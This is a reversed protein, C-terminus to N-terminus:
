IRLERLESAVQSRQWVREFFELYRAAIRPSNTDAIGEWRSAHVRYVLGARDAILFAEEHSHFEEPVLRIEVFSSFRRAMEVMRHGEKVSRLPNVLLIQVRAYRQALVLQKVADLFDISNYVEPELDHTYISLSRKASRAVDSIAHRVDKSFALERRTTDSLSVDAESDHATM